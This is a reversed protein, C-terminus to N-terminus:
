LRGRGFVQADTLFQNYSDEYKTALEDEGFEKLTYQLEGLIAMSLQFSRGGTERKDVLYNAMEMARDGLVGAIELARDNENLKFLIEATTAITFDYSIAEDPM